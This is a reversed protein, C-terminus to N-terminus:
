EYVRAVVNIPTFFQPDYYFPQLHTVDASDWEKGRTLNRLTYWFKHPGYVDPVSLVKTVIFPGWGTRVMYTRTEM